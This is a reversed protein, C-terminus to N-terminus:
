SQHDAQQRPTQLVTMESKRPPDAGARTCTLSAALCAYEMAAKLGGGDLHLDLRIADHDHLWALLAAGFADGAGVTDIIDVPLASVSIRYGDHAGYAGRAGLTVVVLKAGEGLIRDAAHEYDLGPYLWALDDKSAKIITSQSVVSVLRNRYDVDDALGVRVNPDLMMLRRGRERAVLDVLTSAIPELALGLTGLHLANVNPGFERPLMDITLNPASTGEVFFKYQALGEGDLEVAATTTPEPGTSALEMDVGDSVLQDKLQRGFSDQSLRGLFATPVGLRALARATNFPGGGPMARRTGDGTDIMDMLAEGCVVIM